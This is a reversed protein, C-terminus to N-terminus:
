DKVPAVYNQVLTYPGGCWANNTLPAGTQWDIYGINMAETLTEGKNRILAKMIDGFDM